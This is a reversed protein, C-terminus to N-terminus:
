LSATHGFGRKRKIGQLIKRLLTERSFLSKNKKSTLHIFSLNQHLYKERMFIISRLNIDAILLYLDKLEQLLNKSRRVEAYSQQLNLCNHVSNFSQLLRWSWKWKWKWKWRTIRQLDLVSLAM